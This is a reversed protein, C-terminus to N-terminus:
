ESSWLSHEEIETLEFSKIKVNTICDSFPYNQFSKEGEHVKQMCCYGTEKM